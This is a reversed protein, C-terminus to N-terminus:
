ALRLQPAILEPASNKVLAPRVVYAVHLPYGEAYIADIKRLAAERNRYTRLTRTQGNSYQICLEWIM